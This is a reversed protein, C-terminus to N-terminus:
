AHFPHHPSSLEERVKRTESRIEKLNRGAKTLVIKTLAVAAEVEDIVVITGGLQRIVGEDRVYRARVLLQVEPNLEKTATLLMERDSTYPTTLIVHSAKDIGAQALVERRMADGFIATRGRSILTLVVDMNLDIIVVEMGAESLLKDIQQGVPGYGIVIALPVETRAITMIAEANGKRMRKESRGNLVKWLVPSKQLAREISDVMRFLIPNITISLLACAVLLHKGKEPLFGNNSALEALIFSFEGIQARGIGVILAKRVPYGLGIILGFVTLPKILLIVGLGACVLLPDHMLLQPDFLMGVAVFFLVAFADRFPLAEAAAQASVPSQAVVMGALFAGLAVSAGFFVSSATAFAVSLVLITLTFLERSRLRAIRVLIWPVFRAGAVAAIGALIILKGFAIALAVIWHQNDASNGIASGALAPIVVLVIVMLIDEVILWGVAAHGFSTNLQNADTLVRMLVVTSSVAMAMGIVVGASLNFGFEAFLFAAAATVIISQAIAGPIALNRVALLDKLHFHMGVGFMLLIVGLEALEPALKIDGVFGPTHPGIVIGAVLYGVIPSLGIKQTFLGLIWAATFAAALTTLLPFEHMLFRLM